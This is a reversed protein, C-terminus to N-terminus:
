TNKKYFGGEIEKETVHVDRGGDLEGGCAGIPENAM